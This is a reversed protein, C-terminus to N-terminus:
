ESIMRVWHHNVLPKPHLFRRALRPRNYQADKLHNAVPSIAIHCQQQLHLRRPHLHQSTASSRKPSHRLLLKPTSGVVL